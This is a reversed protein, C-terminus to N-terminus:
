RTTGQTPTCIFLLALGSLAVRFASKRVTAPLERLWRPSLRKAGAWRLAAPFTAAFLAIALAICALVDGRSEHM